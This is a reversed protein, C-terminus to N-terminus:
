GKLENTALPNVLANEVCWYYVEPYLLEDSYAEFEVSFLYRPEAFNTVTHPIQTNFLYFTDPKYKLEHFYMNEENKEVGFLSHSTNHASLLLNITLGRYLDTHWKYNQYPDSRLVAARGIPFKSDIKKLVPELMYLERPVEIVEWGIHEFWDYDKFDIQKAYQTLFASKQKFEAYCTQTNLEM